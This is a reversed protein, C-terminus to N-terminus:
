KNGSGAPTRRGRKFYGPIVEQDEPTPKPKPKPKQAKAKEERIKALRAREADAYKGM